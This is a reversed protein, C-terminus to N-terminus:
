RSKRGFMKNYREHDVWDLVLAIIEVKDPKLTYFMRWYNVLDIIWLNNIGYKDVLECPLPQQAHDGALPNTKLYSIKQDISKLLQQNFSNMIGQKRESESILKLEDYQKAADKSLITVIKRKTSKM